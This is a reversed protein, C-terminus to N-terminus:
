RGGSAKLRDEEVLMDEVTPRQQQTLNASDQIQLGDIPASGELLTQDEEEDDPQDEPLIYVAIGTDPDLNGGLAMVDHQTAAVLVYESSQYHLKERQAATLDRIKRAPNGVWLEGERVVTNEPVIAGAAVFAEREVVVGPNLVSGMGILSFDHVTCSHLQALHGVTVGNGIQCHGTRATVICGDQINTDNGIFIAGGHHTTQDRLREEKLEWPQIQRRAAAASVDDSETTTATSELAYTTHFAESNECTDGRLVAGYWISSGSGVFVTGTLTSCPALYAVNPHIVPRGSTLFPFQHRHRSLHDEYVVADDYYDNKTVAFSVTKVGLRDLAQGTERVARGIIQRFSQWLTPPAM